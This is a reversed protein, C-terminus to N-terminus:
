RSLGTRRWPSITLHFTGISLFIVTHGFKKNNIGHGFIQLGIRMISSGMRALLDPLDCLADPGEAECVRNEDVILIHNQSAM